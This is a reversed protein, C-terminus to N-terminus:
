RETVHLTQASREVEGLRALLDAGIVVPGHLHSSVELTVGDIVRGEVEVRDIWLLANVGAAALGSGALVAPDVFSTVSAPEVVADVRVGGIAFDAHFRGDGALSLVLPAADEFRGTVSGDAFSPVADSTGRDAGSLGINGPPLGVAPAIRDILAAPDRGEYVAMGTFMVPMAVAFLLLAKMWDPWRRAPAYYSHARPAPNIEFRDGCLSM